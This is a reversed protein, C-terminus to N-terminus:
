GCQPTSAIRRPPRRNRRERGVDADLRWLGAGGQPLDKSITIRGSSPETTFSRASADTMSSRKALAHGGSRPPLEYWSWIRRRVAEVAAVMRNSETPDRRTAERCM